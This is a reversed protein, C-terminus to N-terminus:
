GTAMAALALAAKLKTEISTSAHTLKTLKILSKLILLANMVYLAYKVSVIYLVPVGVLLMSM